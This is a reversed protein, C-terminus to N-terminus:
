MKRFKDSIKMLKRRNVEHHNHDKLLLKIENTFVIYYFSDHSEVNPLVYSDLYNILRAFDDNMSKLYYYEYFVKERETIIKCNEVPLM